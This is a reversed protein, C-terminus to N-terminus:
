TVSKIFCAMPLSFDLGDCDDHEHVHDLQFDKLVSQQWIASAQLATGIIRGVVHDINSYRQDHVGFDFHATNSCRRHRHRIASPINPDVDSDISIFALM